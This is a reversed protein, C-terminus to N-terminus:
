EVPPIETTPRKAPTAFLWDEARAEVAFARLQLGSTLASMNSRMRALEGDVILAM